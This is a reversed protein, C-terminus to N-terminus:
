KRADKMANIQEQQKENDLHVDYFFEKLLTRRIQDRQGNKPGAGAHICNTFIMFDPETSASGGGGFCTPFYGPLQERCGSYWLFISYLVWPKLRKFFPYLREADYKVCTDNEAHYSIYPVGDPRYLAAALHILYIPDTEQKFQNYFIECDEFEGCTLSDFDNEPGQMKLPKCPVMRNPVKLLPYPQKTLNNSNFIFALLPLGNSAADEPDLKEGINPRGSRLKLIDTFLAAKGHNNDKISDDLINKAVAEVEATTLENWDQPFSIKQKGTGPQYLEIDIM